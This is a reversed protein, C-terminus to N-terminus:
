AVPPMRSGNVPVILGSAKSPDFRHIELIAEVLLGYCLVKDAIPGNINVSRKGTADHLVTITLQAIPTM